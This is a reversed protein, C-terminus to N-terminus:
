RGPSGSAVRTQRHLTSKPIGTLIAVQRLSMGSSLLGMAHQLSGEERGTEPNREFEIRVQTQGADPHLSLRAVRGQTGLGRAQPDQGESRRADRGGAAAGAQGEM